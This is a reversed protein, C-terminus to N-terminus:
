CTGWLGRGARGAAAELRAFPAARSDNPPITLTRAFGGRLLEANVLRNGVRVYALLRGYRDRLEEDFSLEVAKGAVLHENFASARRGFCEVPEGPTVSEPTDVGIYRVDEARGDLSVEITDGDVVRTVEAKARAGSPTPAPEDSPEDGDGRFVLLGVAVALLVLAGIGPTRRSRV